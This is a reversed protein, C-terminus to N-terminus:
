MRLVVPIHRIHVLIHKCTYLLVKHGTGLLPIRAGTNYSSNKPKDITQLVLIRPYRSAHVLFDICMCLYM